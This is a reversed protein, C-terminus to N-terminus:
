AKKKNGCKSYQGKIDRLFILTGNVHICHKRQQKKVLYRKSNYRVYKKSSGGYSLADSQVVYSQLPVRINLKSNFMNYTLIAKLALINDPDKFYDLLSKKESEDSNFIKVEYLDFNPQFGGTANKIKESQISIIVGIKGNVPPAYFRIQKNYMNHIMYFQVTEGILGFAFLMVALYLERNDEWNFIADSKKDSLVDYWRHYNITKGPTSQETNGKVYFVSFPNYTSDSEIFCPKIYDIGLNWPSNENCKFLDEPEKDFNLDDITRHTKNLGKGIWNYEYLYKYKPIASDLYKEFLGDHVSNEKVQIICSANNSLISKHIDKFSNRDVGLIDRPRFYCINNILTQKAHQLEAPLTSQEAM